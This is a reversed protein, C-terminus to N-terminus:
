KGKKFSIYAKLTKIEDRKVTQKATKVIFTAEQQNYSDLIGVLNKKKNSTDKFVAELEEGLNRQYDKDSLILRDLGPSSINLSYPLGDSVDAAELPADLANNVLECDDLTIGGKKYIYITLNNAKNAYKAEVEVVEYGLAEVLPTILAEAREKVRAYDMNYRMFLNLAANAM